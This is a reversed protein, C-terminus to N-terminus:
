FSTNVLSNLDMYYQVLNYLNGEKKCLQQLISYFVIYNMDFYELCDLCFVTELDLDGFVDAEAVIFIYMFLEQKTISLKNSKEAPQLIMKDLKGDYLTYCIRYYESNLILASNYLDRIDSCIYVNSKSCFLGFIWCICSSVIYDLTYYLNDLFLRTTASM